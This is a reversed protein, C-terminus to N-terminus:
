RICDLDMLDALLPHAVDDGRDQLIDEGVPQHHLHVLPIFSDHVLPLHVDLHIGIYRCCEM